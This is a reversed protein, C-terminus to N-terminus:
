DKDLSGRFSFEMSLPTVTNFRFRPKMEAIAFKSYWATIEEFVVSLPIARHGSSKVIVLPEAGVKSFVLNVDGEAMDTLSVMHMKAAWKLAPLYTARVIAAYLDLLPRFRRALKVVAGPDMIALVRTENETERVDFRFLGLGRALTPIVTDILGQWIRFTVIGRRVSFSYSSSDIQRVKSQALPTSKQTIWSAIKPLVEDPFIRWIELPDSGHGSKMHIDRIEGTM